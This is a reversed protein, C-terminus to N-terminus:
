LLGHDLLLEVAAPVRAGMQPWAMGVVDRM